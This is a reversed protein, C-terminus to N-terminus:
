GREIIQKIKQLVSDKTMLDIEHWSRQIRLHKQFDQNCEEIKAMLEEYSGVTYFDDYVGAIESKSITNECNRDFFTVNNYIGAEYWRNALNHFHSHIWEDELYLSYRFLNTVSRGWNVPAIYKPTCGLELFSAKAKPTTSLYLGRRLYEKFYKARDPRCAGWYICDFKKETQSAPERAMLANLNLFYHKRKQSIPEFNGIVEYEYKNLESHPTAKYDNTIYFKRTRPNGELVRKIDKHDAFASSNTFLLVDWSEAAAFKLEEETIFYPCKLYDAIIKNNKIHAITSAGNRAGESNSFCEIIAVKM